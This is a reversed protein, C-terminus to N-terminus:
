KTLDELLARAIRIAGQGDILKQMKDSRIKRLEKNAFYKKVMNAINESVNTYRVDGAYDIIGDKEFQKVNDLQNDVFSFSITPTGCACLEYLTTGGASVALDARKMYEEINSVSQFLKVNKYEKFHNVMQKYDTYYRGCIVTVEKMEDLDLRSLVGELVHYEDNGGSLLLLSEVKEAIQKKGINQFVNRLPMYQPGLWLNIKSYNSPYCFKEWYNAYCIIGAVSYHFANLDDLYIVKTAKSLLKFYNETVQYSDVLIQKIKHTEIVDLLIPLESELDDWKTNLVMAQFGRNAIYEVAEDDSLIFTTDEGLTKAADAISLCRMVHGTAIVSNMNTRIYLM